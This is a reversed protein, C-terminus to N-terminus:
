GDFAVGDRKGEYDIIVKDGEVVTGETLVELEGYLQVYYQIESDVEEDTVETSDPVVTIGKYEGLVVYESATYEPYELMVEETEAETEAEAAETVAETVAETEEAMVTVPAVSSAALVASCLLATMLNKRRM